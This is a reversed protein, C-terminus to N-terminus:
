GNAMIPQAVGIASLWDLREPMCLPFIREQLRIKARIEM